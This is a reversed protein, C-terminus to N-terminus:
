AVRRSRSMVERPLLLRHRRTDGAYKAHPLPLDLTWGTSEHGCDVCMLRLSQQEYVPLWDHGGRRLGCLTRCVWVIVRRM